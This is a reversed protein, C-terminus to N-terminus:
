VGGLGAALANAAETEMYSHANATLTAVFQKAIVSAQASVAQYNQAHALLHAATQASIDDAAPALPGAIPVGAAANHSDLASGLGALTDAAANLLEPQTTVFSV